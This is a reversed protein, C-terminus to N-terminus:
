NMRGSIKECALGMKQKRAAQIMVKVTFVFETWTDVQNVEYRECVIDVNGKRWYGEPCLVVLREDAFLGLEMLTIPSKTEPDFYMAIIDSEEQAKLEWTVQERFQPFDKSQKWSSDWDVRRPNLILVDDGTDALATELEQQWPKAQGMEISGAEFVAMKGDLDYSEPAKVVNM